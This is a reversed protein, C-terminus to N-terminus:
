RIAKRGVCLLSAEYKLAYILVQTRGQVQLKGFISTLHTKVTKESMFLVKAIERNSLGRVLCSLVDMERVTLRNRIRHRWIELVQQYLDERSQGVRGFIRKELQPCIFFEGAFVKRIAQVLMVPEVDKLLYGRAGYRLAELVYKDGDHMTLVLIRTPLKVAQLQRVVEMGSIEPLSLDLLLIDPQLLWTQAIAKQGDVAEGVIQVDSEFRLVQRIGQRLLAYDEAVLVRIGM